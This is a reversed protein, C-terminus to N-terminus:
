RASLGGDVALCVGTVYASADSALFLATAAVEWVSGMRGLPVSRNREAVMDAVSAHAGSIQRYILPTDIMGPLVANVRVGEPALQVALTRTFHNLGAKAAYYASYDYGTHVVGAVSSTNVVSGRGAARMGPLFARCALFVGTLNTDIVLRWDDETLEPPSGLRSIGVNNHLVDVRGHATAVEAALAALAASSTVDVRAATAKDGAETILDVTTEAAAFDIDGVVVTAGAAAYTCAIAAGNGVGDPGTGAGLVVAVAGHLSPAAAARAATM